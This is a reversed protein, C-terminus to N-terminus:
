RTAKILHKFQIQNSITSVSSRDSIGHKSDCQDCYGVWYGEVSSDIKSRNTPSGSAKLGIDISTLLKNGDFTPVGGGSQKRLGKGCFACYNPDPEPM